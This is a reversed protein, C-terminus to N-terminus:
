HRSTANLCFIQRSRHKPVAEWTSLITDTNISYEAILAGYAHSSGLFLIDVDTASKVEQLRTYTHGYGGLRYNLNPKLPEPAYRGWVFLAVVYFVASFLGFGSIHLIYQKM